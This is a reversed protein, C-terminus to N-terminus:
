EKWPTMVQVFRGDPDRITTFLVQDFRTPAHLPQLGKAKLHALFDDLSPVTFVLQMSNGGRVFEPGPFDQAWQITFYISGLRGGYHGRRQDHKEQQLSVGLAERYFAATADANEALLMVVSLASGQMAMIAEM